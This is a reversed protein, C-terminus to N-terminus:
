HQSLILDFKKAIRISPANTHSVSAYIIDLDTYRRIYSMMLFVAASAYKNNRYNEKIFYMAYQRGNHDYIGCQGIITGNKKLIINYIGYDSIEYSKHIYDLLADSLDNMDYDGKLSFVDDICNGDDFSKYLEFLEDADAYSIEKLLIVDNEAIVLPLHRYRCITRRKVLDDIMNVDEYIYRFYFDVNEPHSSIVIAPIRDSAASELAATDDGSIILPSEDILHAEGTELDLSNNNYGPIDTDNMM